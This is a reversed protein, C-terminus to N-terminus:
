FTAILIRLAKGWEFDQRRAQEGGEGRGLKYLTLAIEKQRFIQDALKEM